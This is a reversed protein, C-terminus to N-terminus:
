KSKELESLASRADLYAAEIANWDAPATTMAQTQHEGFFLEAYDPTDRTEIPSVKALANTLKGLAEVLGACLARERSLEAKVRRLEDATTDSYFNGPM